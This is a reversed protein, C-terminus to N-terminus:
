LLLWVLGHLAVRVNNNFPPANSYGVNANYFGPQQQNPPQQQPISQQHHNPPPQQQQQQHMSAALNGHSPQQPHVAAQPQQQANAPSKDSLANWDLGQLGDLGLAGTAALASLTASLDIANAGGSANTNANATNNNNNNNSYPNLHNTNVDDDDDDDDYNFGVVTLAQDAVPPASEVLEFFQEFFM